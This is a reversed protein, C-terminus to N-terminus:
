LVMTGDERVTITTNLGAYLYPTVLVYPVLVLDGAEKRMREMHKGVLFCRFLKVSELSFVVFPAEFGGAIWGAGAIVLLLFLFM